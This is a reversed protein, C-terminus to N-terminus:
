KQRSLASVEPSPASVRMCAEKGGVHADTGSEVTWGELLQLCDGPRQSEQTAEKKRQAVRAWAQAWPLTTHWVSPRLCWHTDLLDNQIFLVFRKNEVGTVTRVAMEPCVGWHTLMWRENTTDLVLGAIKTM